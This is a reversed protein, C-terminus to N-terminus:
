PKATKMEVSSQDTPNNVAQRIRKREAKAWEYILQQEDPSLRAGPHLLVYSRPPMQESHVISAMRTLVSIRSEDNMSQWQSMNLDIRGQHVDRDIMWSVPAFHAYIPYRTKESHCDGCKTELIMRVNGPVQSTEMLPANPDIGTRPNGWPHVTSLAIGLAFTCGLALQIRALNM